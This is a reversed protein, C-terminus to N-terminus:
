AEDTLLAWAKKRGTASAYEANIARTLRAHTLGADMAGSGYHVDYRTGDPTAYQRIATIKPPHCDMRTAREPVPPVVPSLITTGQGLIRKLRHATRDM